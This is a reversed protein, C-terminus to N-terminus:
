ILTSIHFRCASPLLCKIRTYLCHRVQIRIQNVNVYWVHTFQMRVHMTNVEVYLLSISCSGTISAIPVISDFSDVRNGRLTSYSFRYPLSWWWWHLKILDNRIYWVALNCLHLWEVNFYIGWDRGVTVFHWDIYQNFWIFNPLKFVFSTYQHICNIYVRNVEYLQTYFPPVIWLDNGRTICGTKNCTNTFM